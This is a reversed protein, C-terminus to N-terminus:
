PSVLDFKHPIDLFSFSVVNISLLFEGCGTEGQIITVRHKRVSELIENEFEDVPLQPRETRSVVPIPLVSDRKMPDAAQHTVQSTNQKPEKRMKWLLAHYKYQDFLAYPPCLLVVRSSLSNQVIKSIFTEIVYVAFVDKWTPRWRKDDITDDIVMYNQQADMSLNQLALIHERTISSGPQDSYKQLHRVVSEKLSRDRLPHVSIDKLDVHDENIVPRVSGSGNGTDKEFSDDREITDLELPYDSLDQLNYQKRVFDLIEQVNSSVNKKCYVRYGKGQRRLFSLLAETDQYDNTEPGNEFSKQMGSVVYDNGMLIALEVMLEDHIGLSKAISARRIVCATVTSHSPAANLTSLPIYAVDPFFCFDSDMGVVYAQLQGSVSQALVRDAEEDCFVMNVGSTTKLTHIIQVIFLRSKPFDDEWNSSNSPLRGYLCYQQFNSWEDDIREQRRSFTTYKFSSSNSETKPGYRREGDWYVHIQLNRRQLATIFEQTVDALLKLPLFSPLCHRVKQEECSKNLQQQQEKYRAYAVEHVHFCLCFGDIHLASRPPIPVISEVFSPHSKSGNSFVMVDMWLSTKSSAPKKKEDPLWGEQVLLRNWGKVGM